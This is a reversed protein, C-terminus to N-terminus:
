FFILLFQQSRQQEEYKTLVVKLLEEHSEELTSEFLLKPTEFM